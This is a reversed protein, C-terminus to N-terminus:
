GKLCCVEDSDKDEKVKRCNGKRGKWGTGEKGKMIDGTVEVDHVRGHVPVKPLFVDCGWGRLPECGLSPSEHTFKAPGWTGRLTM